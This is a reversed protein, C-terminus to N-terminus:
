GKKVSAQKQLQHHESTEVLVELKSEIKREHETDKTLSAPQIESDEGGAENLRM